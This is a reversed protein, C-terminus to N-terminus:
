MSGSSLTASSVLSPRASSHHVSISRVTADNASNLVRSASVNRRQCLSNTGITCLCGRAPFGSAAAAARLAGRAVPFFRPRSAVQQLDARQRREFEHMPFEFIRRHLGAQQEEVAQALDIQAHAAEAMVDRRQQRAGGLRLHRAAAGRRERAREFGGHAFAAAVDPQQGLRLADQDFVALRDADLRASPSIM